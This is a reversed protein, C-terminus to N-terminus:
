ESVISITLPIKKLPKDENFVKVEAIKDIVDFGETVEGFVVSTNVGGKEFVNGNAIVRTKGGGGEARQWLDEQFTAKGDEEELAACIRDQLSHIYSIWNEKINM